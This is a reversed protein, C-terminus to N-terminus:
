NPYIQISWSLLDLTFFINITLDGITSGWNFVLKQVASPSFVPSGKDNVLHGNDSSTLKCLSCGDTGNTEDTRDTGDTGKRRDTGDTRDTADTGYIGDIGVTRDRRDTGHTGDMGVKGITEIISAAGTADM